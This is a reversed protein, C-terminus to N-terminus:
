QLLKQKMTAFEEASIMGQEHLAALRELQDVPDSNAVVSTPGATTASQCDTIKSRILESMFKADLKNVNAFCEDKGGINFMIAAGGFLSKQLEVSQIDRIEFANLSSQFTGRGWLVVRHDTVVLLHTKFAGGKKGVAKSSSTGHFTTQVIGSDFIKGKSKGSSQVVFERVQGRVVGEITEGPILVDTRVADILGPTLCLGAYFPRDSPVYRAMRAPVIPGWSLMEELVDELVIVEDITEGATSMAGPTPFLESLGPLSGAPVWGKDEGNEVHKVDTERKLNGNSSLEMLEEMAFPGFTEGMVQYYWGDTQAPEPHSTNDSRLDSFLGTISSAEIWPGENGERVLTNPSLNGTEAAERLKVPPHPGLVKDGIRVYWEQVM